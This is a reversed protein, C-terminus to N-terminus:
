LSPVTPSCSPSLTAKAVGLKQLGAAFRDVAENLQRYTLKADMLRSGVRAGFVIAPHDPHRAAANSLFRDLPMHPYPITVPVGVDYHKLWPKEM